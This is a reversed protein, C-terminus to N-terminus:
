LVAGGVQWSSVLFWDLNGLSKEHVTEMLSKCAEKIIDLDANIIYKEWNAKEIQGLLQDDTEPSAIQLTTFVETKGHAVKNRWKMLESVTNFPDEGYKIEINKAEIFLKLKGIPSMGREISDWSNFLKQGVHNCFGEITFCAM